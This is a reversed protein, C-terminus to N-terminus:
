LKIVKSQLQLTETNGANLLASPSASGEAVSSEQPVLKWDPSQLSAPPNLTLSLLPFGQPVGPCHSGDYILNYQCTVKVPDLAWWALGRKATGTWSRKCGFREVCDRVTRACVSVEAQEGPVNLPASVNANLIIIIFFIGIDLEDWPRAQQHRADAAPARYITLLLVREAAHAPASGCKGATMECVRVCTLSFYFVHM